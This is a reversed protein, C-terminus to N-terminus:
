PLLPQSTPSHKTLLSRQNTNNDLSKAGVDKSKSGQATLTELAESTPDAAQQPHATLGPREKSGGSASATKPEIAEVDDSDAKLRM